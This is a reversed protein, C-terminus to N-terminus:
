RETFRRIFEAKNMTSEVLYGPTLVLCGLLTFNTVLSKMSSLSTVKFSKRGAEAQEEGAGITLLLM